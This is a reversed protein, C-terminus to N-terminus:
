AVDEGAYLEGDAVEGALGRGVGLLLPPPVASSRLCSQGCLCLPRPSSAPPLHPTGGLDGLEGLICLPPRAVFGCSDARILCHQGMFDARTATGSEQRGPRFGVGHTRKVPGRGSAMSSAANRPGQQGNGSLLRRHRLHSRRHAVRAPEDLIAEPQEDVPSEVRQARSVLPQLVALLDRGLDVVGPVEGAEVGIEVIGAEPCLGGGVRPHLVEDDRGFVVLAEAEPIRLQRVVLRGVGGGAAVEQPGHDLGEAGAAELDAEVVGDDVPMVGVVDEVGVDSGVAVMGVTRLHVFAAVLRLVGGVDV